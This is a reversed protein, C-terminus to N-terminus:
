GAEETITTTTSSRGGNLSGPQASRWQGVGTRRCTEMLCTTLLRQEKMFQVVKVLKLQSPGRANQGTLRAAPAVKGTM